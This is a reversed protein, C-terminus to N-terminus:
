ARCSARGIESQANYHRQMSLVPAPALAPLDDHLNYKDGNILNNPNGALALLWPSDAAACAPGLGPQAPRQLPPSATSDAALVPTFLSGSLGLLCFFLHIIISHM